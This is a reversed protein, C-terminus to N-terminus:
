ASSYAEAVERKYQVLVQALDFEVAKARNVDAPGSSILALTLKGAYQHQWRAAEPLLSQCPGCAPDTFLLVM